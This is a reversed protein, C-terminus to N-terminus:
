LFYMDDIVKFIIRLFFDLSNEKGGIQDSFWKEFAEEREEKMNLIHELKLKQDETKYYYNYCKICNWGKLLPNWAM